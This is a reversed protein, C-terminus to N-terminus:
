SMSVALLIISYLAFSGEELTGELIDELIGELAKLVKDEDEDEDEIVGDAATGDAVSRFLFAREASLEITQRGTPSRL